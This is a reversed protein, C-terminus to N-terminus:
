IADSAQNTVTVRVFNSINSDYIGSFEFELTTVGNEDGWIEPASMLVGAFDIVLSNTGDTANIQIQKKVTSPATGDMADLLDAAESSGGPFELTLGLTAEWRTSFYDCPYIQGLGNVMATNSNLTVEFSYATCGISSTGYDDSSDLDDMSITTQAATAISTTQTVSVSEQSDSVAHQGVFDLDMSLAEGSSGSITMSNVLAGVISYASDADGYLITYEARSPQSNLDPLYEYEYPGMGTPTVEKILSEFWYQLSNYDVLSTATATAMTMVVEVDYNPALGQLSPFEEVTVEPQISFEQIGPVEVTPAVITGWTTEKGMQISQLDTTKAM